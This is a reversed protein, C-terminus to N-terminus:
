GRGLELRARVVFDDLADLSSPEPPLECQEFTSLLRAQLSDLAHRHAEAEGEVLKAREGGSRKRAILDPVEPVPYEANLAPLHAEIVGSRLVHIGTLLVRYCYLLRKITDDGGELLRRQSSTFGDYHHFLHRVVCGEGIARLEEHWTGGDVVLPSYLQELVYGNRRTMMRAFKLVDHAVWDLEVGDRVELVSVTEKGPRLRLVQDLPSVFAGRLDYDSDPSDFGYLHAGSVTAFLPRPGENVINKLWPLKESIAMGMSPKATRGEM